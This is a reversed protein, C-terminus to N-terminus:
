DSACERQELVRDRRRRYLSLQFDSDDGSRTRMSMDNGSISRVLDFIGDESPPVVAGSAHALLAVANPNIRCVLTDLVKWLVHGLDNTKWDFLSQLSSGLVIAYGGGETQVTQRMMGQLLTINTHDQIHTVMVAVRAAQSNSTILALSHLARDTALVRTTNSPIYQDLTKALVISPAGIGAGLEVSVIPGHHTKAAEVIEPIRCQPPNALCLSLLYGTPWLVGGADYKRLFGDQELSLQYQETPSSSLQLNVSLEQLIPLRLYSLSRLFLGCCLRRGNRHCQEKSGHQNNWTTSGFFGPKAKTLQSCCIDWVDLVLRSAEELDLGVDEFPNWCNQTDRRAEPRTDQTNGLSPVGHTTLYRDAHETFLKSLTSECDPITNQTRLALYRAHSFNGTAIASVMPESFSTCNVAVEDNKIPSLQEEANWSHDSPQDLADSSVEQWPQAAPSSPDPAELQHLLAPSSPADGTHQEHRNECHSFRPNICLSMILLPM